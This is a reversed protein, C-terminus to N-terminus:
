PLPAGGVIELLNNILHDRPKQSVDHIWHTPLYNLSHKNPYLTPVNDVSILIILESLAIGVHIHNHFM